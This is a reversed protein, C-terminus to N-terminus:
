HGARRAEMMRRCFGEKIEFTSDADKYGYEDDCTEKVMACVSSYYTSYACVIDAKVMEYCNLLDHACPSGAWSGRLQSDLFMPFYTRKDEPLEGRSAGQLQLFGNFPKFPQCHTLWKITKMTYNLM